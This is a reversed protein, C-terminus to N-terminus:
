KELRRKLELLPKLRADIPKSSCGCPGLNLNAGCVPCLGKCYESCLRKTPIALCIADRIIPLLDLEGRVVQYEDLHGFDDQEEEAVSLAHEWVRLSLPFDFHELCRYCELEINGDVSGSVEIAESIRRLEILWRLGEGPVLSIEYGTDIAAHCTDRVTKEDGLFPIAVDVGIKLDRIIDSEGREREM